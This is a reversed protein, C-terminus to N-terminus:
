QTIVLPSLSLWDVWWNFVVGSSIFICLLTFSPGWDLVFSEGGVQPSDLVEPSSKAWVQKIHLQSIDILDMLRAQSIDGQWAVPRWHHWWYEGPSMQETTPPWCSSPSNECHQYKAYHKHKAQKYEQLYWCWDPGPGAATHLTSGGCLMSPGATKILQAPVALWLCGGLLM